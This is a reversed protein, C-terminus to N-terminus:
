QQGPWWGNMRRRWRSAGMSYRKPQQKPADKPRNNMVIDQLVQVREERALGLQQLDVSNAHNRSSQVRSRQTHFLPM